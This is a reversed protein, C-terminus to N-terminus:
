GFVIGRAPACCSWRSGCVCKRESSCARCNSGATKRRAAVIPVRRLILVLLYGNRQPPTKARRSYDPTVMLADSFCGLQIKGLGRVVRIRHWCTCTRTLTHSKWSTEGPTSRLGSLYGDAVVLGDEQARLLGLGTSNAPCFRDCYSCAKALQVKLRLAMIKWLSRDVLASNTFRNWSHDSASSFVTAARSSAGRGEPHDIWHDERREVQAV